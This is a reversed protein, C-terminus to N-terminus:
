ETGPQALYPGCRWPISQGVLVLFREQTSNRLLLFLRESIRTAHILNRAFAPTIASRVEPDTGGLLM